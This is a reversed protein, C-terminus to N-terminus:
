IPPISDLSRSRKSFLEQRIDNVKMLSSARNYLLVVFRELIDMSEETINELSTKLVKLAPTLCSSQQFLAVKVTCHIQTKGSCIVVFDQIDQVFHDKFGGAGHWM